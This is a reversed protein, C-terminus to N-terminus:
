VKLKKIQWKSNLLIWDLSVLNGTKTWIIGVGDKYKIENGDDFSHSFCYAYNDERLKSILEYFYYFDKKM